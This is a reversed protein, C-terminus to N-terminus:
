RASWRRSLWALLLPILIMQLVPPLGVGLFPLRLMGARYSWRGALLAKQEVVVAVLLGLVTLLLIRWRGLQRFWLWDEAACAMLLYVLGLLGVDGLSAKFCRWWMGEFEGFLPMQLMEWAFNAALGGGAWLLWIRWPSAASVKQHPHWAM